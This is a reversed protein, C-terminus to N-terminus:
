PTVAGTDSGGTQVGTHSHALFNHGDIITNGNGNIDIGAGTFTFTNDGIKMSVGNKSVNLAVVGDILVRFGDKDLVSKVSGDQTRNIVGNPGYQVLSQPDDTADLDTNGVPLFVSNTLNAQQTPTAVGGGLGSMGGMYFDAPVVYGRTGKQIPFRQFETGVMPCTVLPIPVPTQIEFNITVITGTADVSDVTAPIAKSLLDIAGEIREGAFRNIGAIFPTKQQNGSM